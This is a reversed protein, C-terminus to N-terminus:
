TGPHSGVDTSRKTILVQPQDSHEKCGILFLVAAKGYNQEGPRKKPPKGELSVGTSSLPYQTVTSGSFFWGKKEAQHFRERMALLSERAM